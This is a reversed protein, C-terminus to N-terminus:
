LSLHPCPTMPTDLRVASGPANQLYKTPQNIWVYSTSDQVEKSAKHGRRRLKMGAPPSGKGRLDPLCWRGARKEEHSM